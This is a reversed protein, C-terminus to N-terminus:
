VQDVEALTTLEYIYVTRKVRCIQGRSVPMFNGKWFWIDGWLGQEISVKETSRPPNRDSFCVDEPMATEASCSLM